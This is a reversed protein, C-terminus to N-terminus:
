CTARSASWAGAPSCCCCTARGSRAAADLLRLAVHVRLLAAGRGRGGHLRDLLRRDALRRRHRDADDHRLAPRDAAHPRLPVPRGLAVDVLDDVHAATAPSDGLMVSSPSSRLRRVRRPRRPRSTAPVAGRSARRRRAHDRAGRALPLLLCIWAAANASMRAADEAQRRRARRQPPGDRRDPRARRGGRLRRRGDGRDRLGPRGRPRRPALVRDAALNGANLMIEVSLLIILPSRRVLVGLAGTAFLVGALVVYWAIGPGHVRREPAPLEEARDPRAETARAHSGLVVGGVAAVLLVISTVEFALLHDTLFLRGISEPSGFSRTIHAPKALAAAPRSGSAVFVETLIAGGALVAGVMQWSPGGAWPAQDTRDGLYAIVFLFMVM